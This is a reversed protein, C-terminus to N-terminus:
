KHRRAYLGSGALPLGKRRALRRRAEAAGNVCHAAAWEGASPEIGADALAGPLRFLKHDPSAPCGCVACRATM